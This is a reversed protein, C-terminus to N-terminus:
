IGLPQPSTHPLNTYIYHYIDVKYVIYTYCSTPTTTLCAEAYDYLYIEAWLTFDGTTSGASCPYNSVM